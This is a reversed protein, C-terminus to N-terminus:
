IKLYNQYQELFGQATQYSTQNQIDKAVHSSSNQDHQSINTTSMSYPQMSFSNAYNVDIDNVLTALRLAQITSNNLVDESIRVSISEDLVVDLNNRTNTIQSQTM